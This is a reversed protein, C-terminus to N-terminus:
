RSSFRQIGNPLRCFTHVIHRIWKFAGCVIPLLIHFQRPVSHLIILQARLCDNSSTRVMFTLKISGWILATIDPNSQIYTDIVPTFQEVTQL